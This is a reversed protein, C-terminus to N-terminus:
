SHRVMEFSFPLADRKVWRTYMGRGLRTNAATLQSNTTSRIGKMGSGAGIFMVAFGRVGDAFHIRDPGARGRGEMFTM